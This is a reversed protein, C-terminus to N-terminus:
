GNSSEAEVACGVAWRRYLRGDALSFLKRRGGGTLGDMGGQDVEWVELAREEEVAFDRTFLEVRGDGDWDVLDVLWQGKIQTLVEM